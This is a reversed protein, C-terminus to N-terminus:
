RVGWGGDERDIETEGEDRLVQHVGALYFHLVFEGLPLLVQGHHLSHLAASGDARGSTLPAFAVRRMGDMGTETNTKHCAPTDIYQGKGARM